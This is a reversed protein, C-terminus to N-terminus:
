HVWGRPAVSCPFPGSPGRGGGRSVARGERRWWRVHQLEVGAGVLAGPRGHGDQLRGPGEAHAALGPERSSPPVTAGAGLVSTGVGQPPTQPVAARGWAQPQDSHPAWFVQELGRPPSLSARLGSSVPQRAEQLGWFLGKEWRGPLRLKPAGGAGARGTRPQLEAPPKTRHGQGSVLGDSQPQLATGPESASLHLPQHPSILQPRSLTRSPSPTSPPSGPGLCHAPPLSPAEGWQRQRLVGQRYGGKWVLSVHARMVGVTAM